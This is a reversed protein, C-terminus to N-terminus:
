LCDTVFITLSADGTGKNLTPQLNTQENRAVVVQCLKLWPYLFNKTDKLMDFMKKPSKM